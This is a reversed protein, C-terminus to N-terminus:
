KQMSYNDWNFTKFYRPMITQPAFTTDTNRVQRAALQESSADDIKDIVVQINEQTDYPQSTTNITNALTTPTNLNPLTQEVIQQQNKSQPDQNKNKDANRTFAYYQFAVMTIICWICLIISMTLWNSIGILNNKNRRQM